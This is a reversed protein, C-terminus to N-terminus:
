ASKGLDKWADGLDVIKKIPKKKESATSKEVEEIKPIKWTPLDWKDLNKGRAISEFCEKYQDENDSFKDRICVNFSRRVGMTRAHIVWNLLSRQSIAQPLDPSKRTENAVEVFKKAYNIPIGTMKTLLMSEKEPDPYDFDLKANARDKAAEQLSNTGAYAPNFTLFVILHADKVLKVQEGGFMNIIVENQTDFLPNFVVQTRERLANFENLLLVATKHKNAAIIASPIPGYQPCTEGDILLMSGLLDSEEMDAVCNMVIYPCNLIKAFYKALTTKGGGAKGSIAIVTVRNELMTDALTKTANICDNILEVENAGDFDYMPFYVVNKPSDLYKVPLYKLNVKKEETM